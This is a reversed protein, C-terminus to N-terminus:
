TGLISWVGGQNNTTYIKGNKQAAYLTLGYYNVINTWPKDTPTNGQHVWTNDGFNQNVYIKNTTRSCAAWLQGSTNNNSATISTWGEAPGVSTWPQNWGATKYMTGNYTGVIIVHVSAFFVAITNIADGANLTPGPFTEWVSGFNSTVHITNDIKSALYITDLSSNGAMCFVHTSSLSRIENAVHKLSGYRNGRELWNVPEEPRALSQSGQLALMDGEDGIAFLRNGSRSVLIGNTEWYIAGGTYQMVKWAPIVSEIPTPIPILDFYRQDSAYIDQKHSLLFVNRADSPIAIGRWDNGWPQERVSKWRKSNDVSVFCQASYSTTSQTKDLIGGHFENDPGIAIQQWPFDTASITQVTCPECPLANVTYDNSPEKTWDWREIWGFHRKGLWIYNGNEGGAVITDGDKSMTLFEGHDVPQIAPNSTSPALLWSATNNTAPGIPVWNVGDNTTIYIQKGDSIVITNGTGNCSFTRLSTSGFHSPLNIEYPSAWNNPSSAYRMGFLKREYATSVAANRGLWIIKKGDDNLRLRQAYFNNVFGTSFINTPDNEQRIRLQGSTIYAVVRGDGSCTVTNQESNAGDVSLNLDTWSVGKNYSVHLTDTYTTSSNKMSAYIKTGSADMAVSPWSGPGGNHPFGSSVITTWTTGGNRSLVFTRPGAVAVTNGYDDTTIAFFDEGQIPNYTGSLWSAGSNTTKLFKNLHSEKLFIQSGNRDMAGAFYDGGFLSPVNSSTIFFPQSALVIYGKNAEFNVFPNITANPRYVQLTGGTPSLAIVACLSANYTNIPITENTQVYNYLGGNPNGDIYLNTM